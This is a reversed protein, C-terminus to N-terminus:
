ANHIVLRHSTPDYQIIVNGGDVTTEEVAFETAHVIRVTADPDSSRLLIADDSFEIRYDSGAVRDPLSSELWLTQTQETRALRDAAELDAALDSGAVELTSRATAEGQTDLFGAMSVVLGATLLAVIGLVMAYNLIASIGRDNM